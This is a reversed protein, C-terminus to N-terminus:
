KGTETTLTLSRAVNLDAVEAQDMSRALLEATKKMGGALRKFPPRSQEVSPFKVWKIEIGREEAKYRLKERLDHYPWRGLCRHGSTNATAEEMQITGCGYKLAFDILARSYRHNLTQHLNTIRSDVTRYPSSPTVPHCVRAVLPMDQNGIVFHDPTHSFAVWLPATVGVSVGMVRHPQFVAVDASYQYHLHILWKHKHRSIQASSQQLSGGILGELVQRQTKDEVGVWVEVMGANLGFASRGQRSLLSLRLLFRGPTLQEIRVSQKHLEIPVHRHYSPISMEGKLIAPLSTKWLLSARQITQSLNGTHLFPFQDKLQNYCYGTVGHFGLIEQSIPYNSTQKKYSSSFGQWEWCLQITKNLVQWTQSQTEQLIPELVAWSCSAPKILQFTMTRTFPAM